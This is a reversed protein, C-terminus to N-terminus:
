GKRGSTMYPLAALNFGGHLLSSATYQNQFSSHPFHGILDHVPRSTNQENTLPLTDFSNMPLDPTPPYSPAPPPPMGILHPPGLQSKWSAKIDCEYNQWADLRRTPHHFTGNWRFLQPSRESLGNQIGLGLHYSFPYLKSGAAM